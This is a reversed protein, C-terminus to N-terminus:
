DFNTSMCEVEWNGDFIRDFKQSDKNSQKILYIIHSQTQTNMYRHYTYYLWM